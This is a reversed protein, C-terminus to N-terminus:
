GGLPVAYYGYTTLHQFGCRRYLAVAPANETEVELALRTYGDTRLLAFLGHLFARGVGRGRYAPLVGFAYLYARDPARIIRGSGVPVGDLAALYYQTAPDALNELVREVTRDEPSDFVVAEIAALQPAAAAGAPTLTVALADGTLVPPDALSREMRDEGFEYAAGAQAVFARGGLSAAECILLLERVARARCAAVGAALLARGIGQRRYAPQVMGCLEVESGEGDLDAYGVLEGGVHVLFHRAAADPNPWPNDLSLKLDLGEGANCLALLALAAALDTASLNAQTQVDWSVNSPM